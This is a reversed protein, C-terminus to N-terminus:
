GSFHRIFLGALANDASRHQHGAGDLRGGHVHVAAVGQRQLRAGIVDRHGVHAVLREGERANHHFAACRGGEVAQHLFASGTQGFYGHGAHLLGTGFHGQNLVQASAFHHHTAHAVVLDHFGQVAVGGFHHLANRADGDLVVVKDHNAAQGLAVVRHQEVIRERRAGLRVGAREREVDQGARHNVPHQNELRARRLQLALKATADHLHVGLVRHQFVASRQANRAPRAAGVSEFVTEQAGVVARGVQQAEVVPLTGNGPQQAVQGAFGGAGRGRLQGIAASAQAVLKQRAGDGRPGIHAKRQADVALKFDPLHVHAVYRGNRVGVGLLLVRRLALAVIEVVGFKRVLHGQGLEAVLVITRQRRHPQAHNM